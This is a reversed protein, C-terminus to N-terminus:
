EHFFDMITKFYLEKEELFPLHGSKEFQYIKLIEPNKKTRKKLNKTTTKPNICGDHKGVLLLTPVRLKSEAKRLHYMNPISAM